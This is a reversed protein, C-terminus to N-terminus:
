SGTLAQLQTSTVAIPYYATKSIWGNLYQGFTGALSGISYITMNSANFTASSTIPTAGNLSASSNGSQYSFSAQYTTNSVASSTLQMNPTGVSIYLNNPIAQIYLDAFSTTAGLASYMGGVRYGQSVSSPAFSKFKHYFSGQGLNFISTFNSGGIYAVDSARTVQASTTAIYSTSFALAELQAGWIYIGSYGDGTYSPSTSTPASSSNSVYFQIFPNAVTTSAIGTLTIRYVSNGVPTITAGTVSGTGLQATGIVAGTTLNYSAYIGDGNNYQVYLYRAGSALKVYASLTATTNAALTVQQYTRHGGISTDETLKQFTNTGDPAIDTATNSAGSLTWGSVFQSQLLLNTSSQEILLGLSEGTTPNFDFRPTNTPATQLQPIYNTIATTTTANYATVSSRQELQAGWIQITRSTGTYSNNTGTSDLMEIFFAIAGSSLNSSSYGVRYWGSGVSTIFGTCNTNSTVTGGVLDFNAFTTAGGNSLRVYQCDVYKVYESYTYATGTANLTITQSTRHLGTSTNETLTAANTTTDPSTVTNAVITGGSTSWGSVFQSQIILNQEALVSTKGDYYPATTSRSFTVRPDLQQSNAFDLLLSPRVNPFNTNIAM